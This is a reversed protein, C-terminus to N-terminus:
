TSYRAGEGVAAVVSFLLHLLPLLLLLHLLPLLLLLHLLAATVAVIIVGGPCSLCISIGGGSSEVVVM